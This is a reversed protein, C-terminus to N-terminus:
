LGGGAQQEQYDNRNLIIICLRTLVTLANRLCAQRNEAAAMVSNVLRRKRPLRGYSLIRKKGGEDELM